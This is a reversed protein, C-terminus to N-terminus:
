VKIDRLPLVPHVRNEGEGQPLGIFVRKSSKIEDKGGYFSDRHFFYDMDTGAIFDFDGYSPCKLPRLQNQQNAIAKGSIDGWAM